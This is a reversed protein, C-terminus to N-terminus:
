RQKVSLCLNTMNSQQCKGRHEVPRKTESSLTCRGRLERSERVLLVASHLTWPCPSCALSRRRFLLVFLASEGEWEVFARYTKLLSTHFGGGSTFPPFKNELLIRGPLDTHTKRGSKLLKFHIKGEQHMLLKIWDSHDKPIRPKALPYCHYCRLTNHAVTSINVALESIHRHKQTTCYSLM